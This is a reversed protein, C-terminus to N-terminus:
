LDKRLNEIENEIDWLKKIHGDNPYLLMERVIRPQANELQRIRIRAAASNAIKDQEETVPPPVYDVISKTELDFKKVLHSHYGDIAIHDIPTNQKALEDDGTVKYSSIIGTDKHYFSITKM